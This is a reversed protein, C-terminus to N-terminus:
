DHLTTMKEFLNKTAIPKDENGKKHFNLKLLNELESCKNRDNHTLGSKIKIKATGSQSIYTFVRSKEFKTPNKFQIGMTLICVQVTSRKHDCFERCQRGQRTGWHLTEM